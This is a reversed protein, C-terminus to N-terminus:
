FTVTVEDSCISGATQCVKYSCRGSGTRNLKDTYSSAQVSAIREGDRYVDYSVGASGNWSVDVRQLGWVKYGRASLRILAITTTATASAGDDDTVTLKVTYTGTQTYSHQATNSGGTAGDGFDWRYTEVWGNPDSSGGGDYSCSLGACIVTFRAHPPANPAFTATVSAARDMTVQCGGTGSCDGAWGTFTSSADPTATLTVETGADLSARCSAGCSIGAPSSSVEGSGAGEKSVTLWHSGLRYWRATPDDWWYAWSASYGFGDEVAWSYSQGYFVADSGNWYFYDAWHSAVWYCDYPYGYYCVPQCAGGDGTGCPDPGYYTQEDTCTYEWWTSAAPWTGGYSSQRYWDGCTAAPMIPDSIVEVPPPADDAAPLSPIAPPAPPVDASIPQTIVAQAAVASLALAAVGAVAVAAIRGVVQRARLRDDLSRSRVPQVLPEQNALAGM